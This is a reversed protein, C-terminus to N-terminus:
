PTCRPGQADMKPGENSAAGGKACRVAGKLAAASEPELKLMEQWLVLGLKWHGGTEANRALRLLCRNLGRHALPSEPDISALDDWYDAATSYDADKEAARAVVPALRKIGKRAPESTPDVAYLTRWIALASKADGGGERERAARLCSRKAGSRVVQALDTIDLELLASWHSVATTWDERRESGRALQLHAQALSQGWASREAGISRVRTWADVAASWNKDATARRGAAVALETAVSKKVVESGLETLSADRVRRNLEQMLAM